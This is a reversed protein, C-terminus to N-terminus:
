QPGGVARVELNAYEGVMPTMQRFGIWGGGLIPGYAQGEGEMRWDAIDASQTLPNVCLEASM